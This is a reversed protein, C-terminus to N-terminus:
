YGYRGKLANYNQKVEAATLGKGKYVKFNSIRGHAFNGAGSTNTAGITTDINPDAFSSASSASDVLTGNLYMKFDNSTRTVVIHHWVDRVASNSGSNFSGGNVFYNASNSTSAFFQFQNNIWYLQVPFGCSLITHYTSAHVVASSDPRFWAEVTLDGTGFTFDSTDSITLYDGSGDFEFASAPSGLNAAADGNATLTHGSSSADAITNGQCTLLKTNTVATLSKTPPTFNSTYLATGDVIRVNSLHGEIEYDGSSYEGIIFDTGSSLSASHSESGRSVGDIYYNITSGNRVVAHHHWANDFADIGSTTFKILGDRVWIMNTTGSGEAQIAWRQGSSTSSTWSELFVAYGAQNDGKFWFEITFDGSFGGLSSASSISLYDDLGDFEVYGAGVFPGDTHHMGGYLTGNNGGVKDVWNTSVGVNYNKPSGADLALVLEDEVINPGAAAGM